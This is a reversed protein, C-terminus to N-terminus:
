KPCRPIVFTYHYQVCVERFHQVDGHLFRCFWITFAISGFLKMVLGGWSRYWARATSGAPIDTYVMSVSKVLNRQHQSLLGEFIVESITRIFALGVAKTVLM